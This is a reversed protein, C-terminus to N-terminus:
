RNGDSKQSEAVGTKQEPRLEVTKLASILQEFLDPADTSRATFADFLKLIGNEFERWRLMIARAIAGYLGLQNLQKLQASVQTLQNGTAKDIVLADMRRASQRKEDLIAAIILILYKLSTPFESEAPLQELAGAFSPAKAFQGRLAIEDHFTMRDQAGHALANRLRSFKVLATYEQADLLGLYFCLRLQASYERFHDRFNCAAFFRSNLLRPIIRELVTHGQIVIQDEDILFAIRLLSKLLGWDVDPTELIKRLDELKTVLEARREPTLDALTKTKTPEQM